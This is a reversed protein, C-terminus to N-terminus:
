GKRLACCETHHRLYSTTTDLRTKLWSVGPKKKQIKNNSERGGSTNFLILQEQIHLDISIPTIVRRRTVGDHRRAGGSNGWGTGCSRVGEGARGGEQLLVAGNFTLWTNM